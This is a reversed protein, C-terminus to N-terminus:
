QALKAALVGAAARIGAWVAAIGAAKLYPLSVDAGANIALAVAGASGAFAAVFALVIDRVSAELKEM